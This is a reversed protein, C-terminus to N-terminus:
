LDFEVTFDAWEGTAPSWQLDAKRIHPGLTSDQIRRVLSEVRERPGECVMEVRGDSLNKVWGVLGLELAIAETTHRFGM